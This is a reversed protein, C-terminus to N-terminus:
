GGVGCLCRSLAVPRQHHQLNYVATFILDACTIAHLISGGVKVKLIWSRCFDSVGVVRDCLVRCIYYIYHACFIIDRLYIIYVGYQMCLTCPLHVDVASDSGDGVVM